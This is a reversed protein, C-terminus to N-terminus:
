VYFLLDGYTPFPWEKKDVLLELADAIGRAAEMGPIVDKAYYVAAVATEEPAQNLKEELAGM